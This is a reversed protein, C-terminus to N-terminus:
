RMLASPKARRTAVIPQALLEDRRVRRVPVPQDPPKEPLMGEGVEGRRPARDPPPDAAVPRLPRGVGQSM